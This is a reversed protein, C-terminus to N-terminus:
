IDGGASKSAILCAIIPAILVAAPAPAELVDDGMASSVARKFSYMCVNSRVFVASPFWSCAARALRAPASRSASSLLIAISCCLFM